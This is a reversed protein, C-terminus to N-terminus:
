SKSNMLQDTRMDPHKKKALVKYAARLQDPDVARTVGLIDYYTRKPDIDDDEIM